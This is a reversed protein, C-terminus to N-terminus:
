LLFAVVVVVMLFILLNLLPLFLMLFPRIAAIRMRL